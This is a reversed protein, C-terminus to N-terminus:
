EKEVTAWFTYVIDEEIWRGHIMYKKQNSFLECYAEGTHSPDTAESFSGTFNSGTNNKLLNVNYSWMVGDSSKYPCIYFKIMNEDIIVNDFRAVIHATSDGKPNVAGIFAFDDQVWIIKGKLQRTM